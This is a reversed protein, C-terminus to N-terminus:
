LHGPARWVGCAGNVVLGPRPATCTGPRYMMRRHASDIMPAVSISHDALRRPSASSNGDRCAGVVTCLSEYPAYEARMRRDDEQAAAKDYSHRHRAGYRKEFGAAAVVACATCLNWRSPPRAFWRCWVRDLGYDSRSGKHLVGVAELFTCREMLPSQFEVFDTPTAVTCDRRPHLLSHHSGNTAPQVIAADLRAAVALFRRLERVSPFAVDDDTVWVHSFRSLLVRRMREDHVLLRRALVIKIARPTAVATFEVRSYWPMARFLRQSDDYHVVFLSANALRTLKACKDAVVDAHERGVPLFILVRFPPPRGRRCRAITARLSSSASTNRPM